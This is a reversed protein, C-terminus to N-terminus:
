SDKSRELGAKRFGKQFHAQDGRNKFLQQTALRQVFSPRLRECEALALRAETERGLYGLSLALTSYAIPHDSHEEIARQAWKIADEYQRANFHAFALENIFLHNQPDRPNLQLGKGMYSIGEKPMGARGLAGGLNSYAAANSPNLTIARRAEVIARDYDGLLSYAFGLM